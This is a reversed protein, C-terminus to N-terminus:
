LRHVHEADHGATANRTDFVLPAEAVVLDLDIVEHDTVLVACDCARLREATLPVSRFTEEDLSLEPVHPDHYDVAAGWEALLAIVDKAPSERTDTVGPKYAAGVVLVDSDPVPVGADNLLAVVREVVHEPM